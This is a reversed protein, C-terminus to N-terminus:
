HLALSSYHLISWDSGAASSKNALETLEQALDRLGPSSKDENQRDVKRLFNALDRMVECAESIANDESTM